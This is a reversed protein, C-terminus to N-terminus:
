NFLKIENIGCVKPTMWITHISIVLTNSEGKRKKNFLKVLNPNVRIEMLAKRNEWYGWKSSVELKAKLPKM